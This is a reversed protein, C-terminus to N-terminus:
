SETIRKATSMEANLTPCYNQIILKFNCHFTTVKGGVDQLKLQVMTSMKKRKRFMLANGFRGHQDHLWGDTIM